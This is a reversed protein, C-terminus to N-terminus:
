RSRRGPVGLVGDGVADRRRVRGRGRMYMPAVILLPILQTLYNYGNTFFGLNRTVEIIRKNNAM